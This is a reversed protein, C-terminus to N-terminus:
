MESYESSWSLSEVSPLAVSKSKDGADEKEEGQIHTVRDISSFVQKLFFFCFGFINSDDSVSKM